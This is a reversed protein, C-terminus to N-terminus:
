FLSDFDVREFVELKGGRTANFIKIGHSEAYQRAAEYALLNESKRCPNIKEQNKHYKEDFHRVEVTDGDAYDFDMGLLYIERFGMYVAIQICVYTVTYGCFLVTEMNDSFSPMCPTYNEIAMHFVNIQDFRGAKRLFEKNTDSVFVCDLQSELILDEFLDMAKGDECVYYDPRWKTNKFIMPIGNMGFCIIGHHSLANLDAVSLSSGNGVIFCKEDEHMNHFRCVAPHYFKDAFDAVRYLDIVKIGEKRPPDKVTQIIIEDSKYGYEKECYVKGSISQLLPKSDLYKEQILLSVAFGKELFYKWLLISYLTFGYIIARDFDLHLLSIEDFSELQGCCFEYPCDNMLLYSYIGKRKLIEIIEQDQYPSVILLCDQYQEVYQEITIVPIENYQTGQLSENSDIFAKIYQYGIFKAAIKGRNGVGWIVFDM